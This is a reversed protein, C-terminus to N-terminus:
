QKPNKVNLNQCFSVLPPTDIQQFWLPNQNNEKKNETAHSMSTESQHSSTTFTHQVSAHQKKTQTSTPINQSQDENNIMQSSLYYANHSPTVNSILEPKAQIVALDPRHDYDISLSSMESTQGFRILGQDWLSKYIKLAALAGLSHKFILQPLSHQGDCLHLAYSLDHSLKKETYRTYVNEQLSPFSQLALNVEDKQRMVELLLGQVNISLSLPLAELEYTSLSFGQIHDLIATQIVLLAQHKLASWLINVNIYQLHILAEGLRMHSSYSLAKLLQNENIKGQQKLIDGLRHHTINSQAYHVCGQDFYLLSSGATTNLTMAAQRRSQHLLTIMDLFLDQDVAQAELYPSHPKLERIPNMASM